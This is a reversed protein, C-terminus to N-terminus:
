LQGQGSSRSQKLRSRPGRKSERERDCTRCRRSKDAKIRTNEPTYEHGNSCHTKHRNRAGIDIARLTNVGRTVVEMHDPNVCQKNRCLHDITLDDPIPGHLAEWAYRHAGVTKTRSVHFSGYGSPITGKTWQWCAGQVNGVTPMPGSKNVKSWFRAVAPVGVRQIARDGSLLLLRYHRGCRGRHKPREKCNEFECVDMFHEEAQKPVSQKPAKRRRAPM